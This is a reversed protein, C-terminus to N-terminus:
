LFLGFEAKYILFFLLECFLTNFMISRSKQEGYPNEHDRQVYETNSM